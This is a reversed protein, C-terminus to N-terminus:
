LWHENCENGHGEDVVDGLDLELEAGDAQEPLLAFPDTDATRQDHRVPAHLRGVDDVGDQVRESVRAGNGEIVASRRVRVLSSHALRHARVLLAIAIADDGHAAARGDIEGLADGDARRVVTRQLAEGQDFAPEIADGGARGGDDGHRRGGAGAAFHAAARDEDQVIAALDALRM